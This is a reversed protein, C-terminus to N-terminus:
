PQGPYYTAWDYTIIKGDQVVFLHVCRGGVRLPPSGAHQYVLVINPALMRMSEITWQYGAFRTKLIQYFNTIAAFGHLVTTVGKPSSQTLTADPAFVSALPSFDGSRMGVNFLQLYTTVVTRADPETSTASLQAKAGGGCAALGSLLIVVLATLLVFPKTKREFINMPHRDKRRTHMVREIIDGTTSVTAFTSPM